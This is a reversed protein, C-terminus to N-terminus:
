WKLMVFCEIAVVDGVCHQWLWRMTHEGGSETSNFQFLYFRSCNPQTVEKRVNQEEDNLRKKQERIEVKIARLWRARLHAWEHATRTRRLIVHFYKLFLFIIITGLLEIVALAAQNHRRGQSFGSMSAVWIYASSIPFFQSRRRSSCNMQCFPRFFFVATM